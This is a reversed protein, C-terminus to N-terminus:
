GSARITSTGITVLPRSSNRVFGASSSPITYAGDGRAKESTERRFGGTQPCFTPNFNQGPLNSPVVVTGSQGGGEDDRQDGSRGKGLLAAPRGRHPTVRKRCGRRRDGAVARAMDGDARRADRVGDRDVAREALADVGADLGDVAQCGISM